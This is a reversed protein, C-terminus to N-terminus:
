SWIRNTVVCQNCRKKNDNLLPSDLAKAIAESARNTGSASASGM